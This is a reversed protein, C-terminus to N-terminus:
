RSAPSAIVAGTPASGPPGARGPSDPTSWVATAPAPGVVVTEITITVYLLTSYM